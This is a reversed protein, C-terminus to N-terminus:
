LHHLFVLETYRTGVCRKHSGCWAWRLKFFLIDINQEGFV